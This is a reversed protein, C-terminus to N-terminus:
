QDVPRLNSVGARSCRFTDKGFLLLSARIVSGSMASGQGILYLIYTQM